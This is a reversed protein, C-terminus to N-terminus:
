ILPPKTPRKRKLLPRTLNKQRNKAATRDKILATRAVHLERLDRIIKEPAPRIPPEILAGFRALMAADMRDTKTLQGLAQGFRKAHLPNVKSLPLGAAGMTQEFSRHYAGTAEFVVRAIDRGDVWKLLARFGATTNAVQRHSGDPHIHLDLTDKSVDVGITIDTM